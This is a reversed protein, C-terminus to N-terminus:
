GLRTPQAQRGLGLLLQQQDFDFLPLSVFGFPAPQMALPQGLLLKLGPQGQFPRRRRRRSFGRGGGVFLLGPRRRGASAVDSAFLEVSVEACHSRNVESPSETADSAISNRSM